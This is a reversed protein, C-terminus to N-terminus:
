EKGDDIQFCTEIMVKCLNLSNVCPKFDKFNGNRMRKITKDIKQKLLRKASQVKYLHTVMDPKGLPFNNFFDQETLPKDTM